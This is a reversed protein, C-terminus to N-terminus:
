KPSPELVAQDLLLIPINDRIPFIRSCQECKLSAGNNHLVLRTKCQPCALIELLDPAIM